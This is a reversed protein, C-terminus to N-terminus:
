NAFVLYKLVTEMYSKMNESNSRNEETILYKGYCNDITANERCDRNVYHALEKLIAIDEHKLYYYDKYNIFPIKIKQEVIKTSLQIKNKNLHLYYDNKHYSIPRNVEQGSTGSLILLQNENGYYDTTIELSSHEFEFDGNLIDIYSYIPLIHIMGLIDEYNHLLIESRLKECSSSLYTHYKEILDAGSYIDMREIHFFEEVSKQKLSSLKLIHKYPKLDKYIDKSHISSLPSSINLIKAKDDLYRLDFGDGNFTLIHKFHQAQEFFASLIQSEEAINEVFFQSICVENDHLIATGILYLVSTKASFGTTEIDCLITDNEFFPVSGPFASCPIKKQFIYM